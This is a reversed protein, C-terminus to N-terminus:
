CFFVFIVRFCAFIPWLCMYTSHLNVLVKLTVQTLHNDIMTFNSLTAANTMDHQLTKNQSMTMNALTTCLSPKRNEKGKQRHRSVCTMVCKRLLLM